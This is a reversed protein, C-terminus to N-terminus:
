KKIFDKRGAIVMTPSHSPQPPNTQDNAMPRKSTYHIPTMATHCYFNTADFSLLFTLLERFLGLFQERAEGPARVIYQHCQLESHYLLFALLKGLSTM